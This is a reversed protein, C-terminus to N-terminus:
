LPQFQPSQVGLAAFAEDLTRVVQLLPRTSEGAIQFMRALGFGELTPAVLIRPRRAGDPMAPEQDALWRIFEGSVAFETVSSLDWIGASADTATSRERIERYFEAAAEDTFRGEFRALLVKNVPDFEFRYAM